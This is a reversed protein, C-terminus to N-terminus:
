AYLAIGHLYGYMTLAEKTQSIAKGTDCAGTAYQWASCHAFSIIHVYPITGRRPYGVPITEKKFRGKQRFETIDPLPQGNKARCSRSSNSPFVTLSLLNNDTYFSGFRSTPTHPIPSGRARPTERPCHSITPGSTAQTLGM